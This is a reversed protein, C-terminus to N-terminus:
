SHEQIFDLLEPAPRFWEGHARHEAFRGHLESEGDAGRGPLVLILRLPLPSMGRLTRLRHAPSEAVGIKIYGNSAQIFYVSRVDIAKPRRTASGAALLVQEAELRHIEAFGQKIRDTLARAQEPTTTAM